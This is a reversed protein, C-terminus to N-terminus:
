RESLTERISKNLTGSLRRLGESFPPQLEKLFSWVPAQFSFDLGLHLRALFSYGRVGRKLCACSDSLLIENFSSFFNNGPRSLEQFPACGADMRRFQTGLLTLARKLRAAKPMHSAPYTGRKLLRIRTDLLKDDSRDGSPVKGISKPSIRNSVISKTWFYVVGDTRM